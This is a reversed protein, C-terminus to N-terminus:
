APSCQQTPIGSKELIDLGETSSYQQYYFVKKVNGLNILRKACMVCPSWTTFVMKEVYRPVDCNIVSNEEAHLCQCGGQKEPHDCGNPLGSANGNYGVALVKRYDTSTIVCGVSKRQCTSRKELQVALSMYIQEFSPRM